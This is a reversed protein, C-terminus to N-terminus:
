TKRPTFYIGMQYTFLSHEAPYESAVCAYPCAHTSVDSNEDVFMSMLMFNIRISHKRKHKHKIISMSISIDPGNESPMLHYASNNHKRKHKYKHQKHFGPKLQGYTMEPKQLASRSSWAPHFALGYYPQFSHKACIVFM